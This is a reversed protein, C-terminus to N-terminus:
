DSKNFNELMKEVEEMQTQLWSKHNELRAKEEEKSIPVSFAWGRGTGWRFGRGMGWNRRRWFAYGDGCPGLGRGVPGTGIPGTKDMGPM